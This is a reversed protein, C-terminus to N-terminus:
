SKGAGTGRELGDVIEIVLRVAEGAIVVAGGTGDVGIVIQLAAGALGDIVAGEAEAM